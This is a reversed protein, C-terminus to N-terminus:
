GKALGKKIRSIAEQTKEKTGFGTLRYYGEGCEGFGSGPTGIINFEDLLYDFFQWSTYGEPTELWVYPSNEAGYVTYGLEAFCKKIEKANSLYYDLNEKTQKKGEATYIAAAGRQIIYPVGNFKTAQRRTWMKNLNVVGGSKLHANIELPVITYSCRTGTFGATKSYSRFEVACEKARPIEYISHPKDDERIFAEYAGDYLILCGHKIAYNVWATLQDYTMATGTPNNPSCLYIIDVQRRPLNPMFNNEALCPMLRIKSYEGDLELRGAKGAMVNSDLYVPYVPDTIAIINGSGFMDTFNGTDSKAGDSIFLEDKKIEVGLAAYDHEIIADLLFDYGRDPGYGKFTESKAMDDVAIHMADIVCKPLLLTVDGIGLKIVDSEPHTAIYTETKRKITAFLYNEPLLQFNKNATIM